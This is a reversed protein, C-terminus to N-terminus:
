GCVFRGEGDKYARDLVPAPAAGNCRVYIWLEGVEFFPPPVFQSVWEAGVGRGTVSLTVVAWAWSEAHDRYSRLVRTRDPPKGCLMWTEDGGPERYCVKSGEFYLRGEPSDPPPLSKLRIWM